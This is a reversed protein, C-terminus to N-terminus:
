LNSSCVPHPLEATLFPDMGLIEFTYIYGEVDSTARAKQMEVRLSNKTAPQLYEPIWDTCDEYMLFWM